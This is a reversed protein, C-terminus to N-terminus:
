TGTISLLTILVDPYYITGTVRVAWVDCTLMIFQEKEKEEFFSESSVLIQLAKIVLRTGYIKIPIVKLNFFFHKKIEATFRLPLNSISETTM